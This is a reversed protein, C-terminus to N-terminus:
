KTGAKKVAGIIGRASGTATFKIDAIFQQDCGQSDEIDCYVLRSVPQNDPNLGIHNENGCYPCKVIVRM